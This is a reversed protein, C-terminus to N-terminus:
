QSRVSEELSTALGQSTSNAGERKLHKKREDDKIEIANPSETGDTIM